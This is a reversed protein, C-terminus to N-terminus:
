PLIIRLRFGQGFNRVVVRDQVLLPKALAFRGIKPAIGLSASDGLAAGNHQSILKANFGAPHEFIRVDKPKM